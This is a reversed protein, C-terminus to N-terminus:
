NNVNLVTTNWSECNSCHHYEFHYKTTSKTQCDNCFINSTKDKFEEPMECNSMYDNIKSWLHNMNTVSKKCYPCQYNGSKLYEFLCDQHVLHNCPLPIIINRSNKLNENCFPCIDDYKNICIHDKFKCSHICMNCDDCHILDKGRRCIKCKHCHSIDTNVNEFLNCISCFYEGMIQNCNICKQGVSQITNCLKCKMKEVNYRDFEHSTIQEDHCYICNFFDDCVKCYLKCNRSYHNCEKEVFKDKIKTTMIERILNFKEEASLDNRKRIELIKKQKDM